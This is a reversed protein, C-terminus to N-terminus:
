LERENLPEYAEPHIVIPELGNEIRLPNVYEVCDRCIPQREGFHRISPVRHPNYAFIRKCGFCESHAMVWGM